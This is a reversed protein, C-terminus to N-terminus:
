RLGAMGPTLIGDNTLSEGAVEAVAYRLRGVLRALHTSDGATAEAGGALVLSPVGREAFAVANVRDSPDWPATAVHFPDGELGERFLSELNQAGPGVGLTLPIDGHRERVGISGLRELAIMAVLQAGREAFQRAGQVSGRSDGRAVASEGLAMFLFHTTRQLQAGRMVRALELLVAVSGASDIGVSGEASDYHAGVVVAEQGRAGGPLTVSINLAMVGNTEYGARAVALGMNELEGALYDATEALEWPKRPNREGIKQTLHTLHRRLESESAAEDATLAPLALPGSSIVVKQAPTRAVPARGCGSGAAGACALLVCPLWSHKNVRGLKAQFQQDPDM